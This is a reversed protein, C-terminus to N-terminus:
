KNYYYVPDIEGNKSITFYAKGYDTFIEEGKAIDRTAELEVYHLGSQMDYAIGEEDQVMIANYQLSHNAWRGSFNHADSSDIGGVKGNELEVDAIWKNAPLNTAEKASLLKGSYRCVVEGTKIKVRAFLGKGGGDAKSNDVYVKPEREFMPQLCCPPTECILSQTKGRRCNICHCYKQVVCFLTLSRSEGKVHM